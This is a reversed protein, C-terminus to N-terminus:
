SVAHRNFSGQAKACEPSGAPGFTVYDDLYHDIHRIGRQRLIWELGDAVATFIKPASCLGFPLMADVYQAGRWEIGLLPRDEPHVPILRYAAKVDLKVILAGRGLSRLALSINEVSTYQLSCLAANIGSNMNGREPFSLDIILRWKGPSHGKPIVGMRNVHLGPIAGPSFPGLIQGHLREAQVYEIVAPYHKASQMNQRAPHFPCTYDFVWRSAARSPASSTGSLPGTQSTSEGDRGVHRCPLASGRCNRTSCPCKVVIRGTSGSSTRLIASRVQVYSPCLTHGLM